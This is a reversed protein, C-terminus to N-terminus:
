SSNGERELTQPPLMRGLLFDRKVILHYSVGFLHLAILGYVVWQGIRHLNEAADGVPRHNFAIRPFRVLHFPAVDHGHGTAWLYGTVPMVLLMLFLGGHVLLALRRSWPGVHVPYVPPRDFWRLVIRTLTLALITLGISEHIDMWFFFKPTEETVSVVVWAVPLISFILVVTLWHMTQQAPSYRDKM